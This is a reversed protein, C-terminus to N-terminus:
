ERAEPLPSRILFYYVLGFFPVARAIAEVGKDEM